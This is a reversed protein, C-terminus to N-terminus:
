SKPEVSHLRLALESVSRRLRVKEKRPPSPTSCRRRRGGAYARLKVACGLGTGDRDLKEPRKVARRRFKGGLFSFSSM